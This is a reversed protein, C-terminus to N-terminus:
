EFRGQITGTVLSPNNKFTKRGYEFGLLSAQGTNESLFCQRLKSFQWQIYYCAVQSDVLLM